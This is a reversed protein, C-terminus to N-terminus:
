LFYFFVKAPDPMASVIDDESVVPDRQVGTDAQVTEQAAEESSIRNLIMIIMTISLFNLKM